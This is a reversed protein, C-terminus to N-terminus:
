GGRSRALGAVTLVWATLALWFFTVGVARLGSLGDAGGLVRSAVGYMGLPFVFSWRAAEYRWRRVRLEIAVLFPITATALAWTALDVDPLARRLGDLEHLTRLALLLESGALTAIALAGMVIWLDPSFRRESGVAALVAALVFPYLVLGLAWAALAVGLLPAGRQRAVSAGLVALSETGVVLLLSGGSLTGARPRRALLLLWLAAALSWLALAVTQQGALSFDAGIVATAAVVAFSQLRPRAFPPRLSRRGVVAALVLWAACAAALLGDALPGIGELRAGVGLIGTAMVVAFAGTDAEEPARM